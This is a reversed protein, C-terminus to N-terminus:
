EVVKLRRSSLSVPIPTAGDYVTFTSYAVVEQEPGVTFNHQFSLELVWGPGANVEGLGESAAKASWDGKTLYEEWLVARVTLKSLDLRLAQEGQQVLRASQGDPAVELAVAARPSRTLTGLWERLEEILGNWPEDAEDNAGLIANVAGVRIRDVSSDPKAKIQLDGAPTTTKILDQLSALEEQSLKGEFRGVPTPPSTTWGVSRWLNYSGDQEIELREQDAPPRGGSRQFEILMVQTGGEM